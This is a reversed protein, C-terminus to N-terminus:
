AGPPVPGDRHRRVRPRDADAQDEPGAQDRRGDRPRLRRRGQLHRLPQQLHAGQLPADPRGGAAPVREIIAALLEDVGIGPRAASACCRTRTSGWPRNGDRRHRLGPPRAAPRDQEAGPRDEPGREMALFANAVTQAQVGQFADVLLIAGECAALSRSVEYNFDVHGPTDILNLEYKTGTTRRLLGHGPAHPHHHRARAGPGHQRADPGQHRARLDAGTKLLFQDALTSKGHDIHAIICFNRINATPTPMRCRERHAFTRDASRSRPAAEFLEAIRDGGPPASYTAGAGPSAIM